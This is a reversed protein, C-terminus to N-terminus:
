RISPIADLRHGRTPLRSPTFGHPTPDYRHQCQHREDQADDVRARMGGGRARHGDLNEALPADLARGAPDVAAPAVRFAEPGETVLGADGQGRLGPASERGAAPRAVAAARGIGGAVEAGA